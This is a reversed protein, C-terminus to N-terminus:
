NQMRGEWIDYHYLIRRGICSICSVPTKLGQTLFIGQLLFHCGVGTNKVPFSKHVSSHPLSCDM